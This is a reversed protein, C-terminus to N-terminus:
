HHLMKYAFTTGPGMTSPPWAQYAAAAGMQSMFNASAHSKTEAEEADTDSFSSFGEEQDSHMDFQVRLKSTLCVRTTCCAFLACSLKSDDESPWVASCLLHHM